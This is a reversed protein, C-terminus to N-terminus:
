FEVTAYGSAIEGLFTDFGGLVVLRNALCEYRKLREVDLRCSFPM